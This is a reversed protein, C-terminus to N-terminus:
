RSVCEKELKYRSKLWWRYRGFYDAPTDCEPSLGLDSLEDKYEVWMRNLWVRFATEKKFM